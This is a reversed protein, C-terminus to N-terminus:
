VLVVTGQAVSEVPLVFQGVNLSDNNFVKFWVMALPTTSVRFTLKDDWVPNYGVFTPLKGVVDYLIIKLCLSAENCYSEISPYVTAKRRICM